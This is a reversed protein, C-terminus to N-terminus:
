KKGGLKLEGEENNAGYKQEIEQQIEEKIAGISYYYSLILSEVDAVTM